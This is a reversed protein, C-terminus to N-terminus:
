SQRIDEGLGDKFDKMVETAVHNHSPELTSLSINSKRLLRLLEDRMCFPLTIRLVSHRESEPFIMGALYHEFHPKQNWSVRNRWDEADRTFVASQAHINRVYAKPHRILRTQILNSEIPASDVAWVVLRRCNVDAIGRTYAAYFAAVLPNTTWDLLGTPLGSHQALAFSIDLYRQEIYHYLGQAIESRSLDSSLSLKAYANVIEIIENRLRHVKFNSRRPVRIGINSGFANRFTRGTDHQHFDSNYPVSIGANDLAVLFSVVRDQEVAACVRALIFNYDAGREDLEVNSSESPYENMYNELKQKAVDFVLDNRFISPLLTWAANNQGRFIWEGESYTDSYINIANLFELANECAYTVAKFQEQFPYEHIQEDKNSAVSRQMRSGGSTQILFQRRVWM